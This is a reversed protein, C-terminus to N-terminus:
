NITFGQPWLSTGFNTELHGSLRRTHREKLTRMYFRLFGTRYATLLHAGEAHPIWKYPEVLVETEEQNAEM